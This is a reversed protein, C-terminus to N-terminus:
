SARPEAAGPCTSTTIARSQTTLQAQEPEFDGGSLSLAHPKGVDKGQALSLETGSLSMTGIPRM